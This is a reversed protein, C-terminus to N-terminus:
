LGEPSALPSESLPPSNGTITQAQIYRRANASIRDIEAKARARFMGTQAESGAKALRVEQMMDQERMKLAAKVDIEKAKVAMENGEAKARLEDMEKQQQEEEARQVREATQAMVTLAQQIPRLSRIQRMLAKADEEKGIQRGGYQMHAQIHESVLQMTDLMRQPDEVQGNQVADSIQKLITFHVPIHSWHFQDPAALVQSLELIDNNEVTAHSAADSPMEDRGQIPRFRDAYVSGMRARVLERTADIRGREDLNGGLSLVSELLGAKAAAGGNVIDRCMYVEFNDIVKKLHDKSVGRAKCRRVFKGVEPYSPLLSPSTVIAMFRRFTEQFISDFIVSRTVFLGQERKEGENKEILVEEKTKRDAGKYLRASTPGAGGMGLANGVSVRSVTEIIQAAQSVANPDIPAKSAEVDQPLVSYRGQEYMTLRENSGGGTRRLHVRMLQDSADMLECMRKNRAEAVPAIASALGRLAAARCETTKYPLWILCQNMSEYLGYRVMLFDNFEPNSPIMYHSVRRDGSVERVFAHIVNMPEFQRSEYIRNERARMIASEVYSTGFDDGNVNTSPTGDTFTRVAFKKMNDLYWGAATSLDPNDFLGFVYSAPITSEVMILENRHSLHPADTYLKVNARMLPTPRYGIPDSWMCPGFGYLDGERVVTSLMPLFEASERLTRSFEDSVVRGIRETDPGAIEMDHPRLEVLDTTDLALNNVAEARADIQGSLENINFNSKDKIGADRLKNPDWPLRGEYMGLIKARRTSAELDDQKAKDFVDRLSKASSFRFMVPKGNQDCTRFPNVYANEEGSPKKNKEM